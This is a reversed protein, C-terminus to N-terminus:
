PADAYCEIITKGKVKKFLYSSAGGDEQITIEISDKKYFKYYTGTFGSSPKIDKNPLNKLLQKKYYDVLDNYFLSYCKSFDYDCECTKYLPEEYINKIEIDKCSYGKIEEKKEFLYYYTGWERVLLKDGFDFITHFPTECNLNYVGKFQEELLGFEKKFFTKTMQVYKETGNLNFNLTEKILINGGSCYPDNNIV